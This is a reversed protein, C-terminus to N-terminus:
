CVVDMYQPADLPMGTAPPSPSFQALSAPPTVQGPQPMGDASLVSFSCLLIIVSFIPSIWKLPHRSVISYRMTRNRM